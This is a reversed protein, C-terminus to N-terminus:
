TMKILAGLVALAVMLDIALAGRARWRARTSNTGGARACQWLLWISWLHFLVPAMVLGFVAARFARLALDDGAAPREDAEGSVGDLAHIRFLIAEARKADDAHVVLKVGGVANSLHWAVGVLAGDRLEADIGEGALAGRALEAEVPDTFAAVTATASAPEFVVRM